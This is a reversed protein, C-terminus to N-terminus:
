RSPGHNLSGTITCLRSSKEGHRAELEDNIADQSVGLQKAARKIERALKVGPPLKELRELVADEDVEGTVNQASEIAIDVPAEAPPPRWDPAQEVLADLQERTGRAALWDRVDGKTALGPLILVRVRGAVGALSAGIENIHKWGPEDNDPLLVVDAGRLYQNFEPQWKGAGGPNTTAALGLAALRDADKEGEAVFVVAGARVAAATEPLRYLVREMGDLNWAWGGGPLPRRCAFSKGRKRLVQYLLSGEADRYDYVAEVEAPLDRAPPPDIGLRAVLDSWGGGAQCADCCWVADAANWRASPHRDEHAPCLFRLERGERRGHRAALAREIAALTIADPSM